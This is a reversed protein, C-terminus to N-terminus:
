KAENTENAVASGLMPLDDPVAARLGAATTLSKFERWGISDMGRSSGNASCLERRGLPSELLENSPEVADSDIRILAPVFRSIGELLAVSGEDHTAVYLLSNIVPVLSPLFCPGRAHSVFVCQNGRM